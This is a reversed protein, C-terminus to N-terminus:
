SWPRFATTVVDVRQDRPAVEGMGEVDSSRMNADETEGGGSSSAM